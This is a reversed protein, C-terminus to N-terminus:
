ALRSNYKLDFTQDNMALFYIAEVFALMSPIFTWFFLLYLVGLATNGLYFRHVGFSGLFFALLAATVKNRSATRVWGGHQLQQQTNNNQVVINIGPPYAYPGPYPQPMQGPHGMPQPYGPPGPHPMPGAYPMPQGAYPPPYGQMPGAPYPQAAYASPPGYAPNMAHPPPGAYPPPAPPGPNPAYQPPAPAHGGYPHVAHQPRNELESSPAQNPLHRTKPDLTM